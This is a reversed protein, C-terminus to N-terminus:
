NKLRTLREKPAGGFIPGYDDLHYKEALEPKRRFYPM